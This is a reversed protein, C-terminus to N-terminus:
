EKKTECALWIKGALSRFLVSSFPMKGNEETKEMREHSFYPQSALGIRKTAKIVHIATMNSSDIGVNIHGITVKNAKKMEKM